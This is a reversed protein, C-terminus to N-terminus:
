RQIKKLTQIYTLYQEQLLIKPKDRIKEALHSSSQETDRIMVETELIKDILRKTEQDNGSRVATDLALSLGQIRTEYPQPNYPDTKIAKDAYREMESFNGEAATQLSKLRFVESCSQNRSLIHDAITGKQELSETKNIQDLEAFTLVPYLKLAAGEKNLLDLSMFSFSYLSFCLLFAAAVKVPLRCSVTKGEGLDLLLIGVFAASLFQMDFDFLSHLVCVALMRKKQASLRKSFFSLGLIVCLLIGAPIGFDLVTQLLENHVFMTVYNGSAYSGQVFYYGKYGLGFPHEKIIQLADQWYLLRGWFTSSQTLATVIRAFSQTNGLIVGGLIMLLVTYASFIFTWRRFQKKRVAVFVLYLVFLIFVSRSGSLLIGTICIFSEVVERRHFSSKEFLIMISLLTMFAFTNPYQFFGGLRGATFFYDQWPSFWAAASFLVMFSFIHPLMQLCCKRKEAEMQYLALAFLILPLFKVFGLVAVGWDVAYLCSLASCLILLCLCYFGGGTPIRIKRTNKAKWLLFLICGISCFASVAEYYGGWLFFTLGFLFLFVTEAKM